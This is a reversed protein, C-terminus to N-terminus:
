ASKNDNSQREWTREGQGGGRASHSPLWAAAGSVMAWERADPFTSKVLTKYAKQLKKQPVRFDADAPAAVQDLVPERSGAAAAHVGPPLQTAM